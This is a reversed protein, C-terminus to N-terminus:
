NTQFTANGYRCSNSAKGIHFTEYGAENLLAPLLVVGSPAKTGKVDPIRWLSRGTILMTRSPLCVAGVMSGMCYANNFRFGTKVLRDLNPTHIEENGLARITDWRQDDSFIFLINPRKPLPTAARVPTVQSLLGLLLLVLGLRSSGYSFRNMCTDERTH